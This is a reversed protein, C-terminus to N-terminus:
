PSEILRKVLRASHLAQEELQRTKIALKKRIEDKNSWADNIKSVLENFTTTRLDCVYREQELMRMIGCYKHSWALAITPVHMSTSAINSHMRAGIFLDFRGIIGKLEDPSYDGKILKIRNKNMALQHIKKAVFRDDPYGLKPPIAVHPVFVVQANLKDILYDVINAMLVYINSKSKIREMFLSASIGILPGNKEKININEKIMIQEVKESPAPELLFAVDPALYISPNHVGMEKLYNKTIDERVVILDARNLCFRALPLSIKRFPGISQSYIVIKKELFIALLIRTMSFISYGLKDRFSDGSLDVIIDSKYYEMLIEKDIIKKVNLGNKRLISWLFACILFHLSEFLRLLKSYRSFSKKTKHGKVRINYKSCLKSDLEPSGSLLTFNVNSMLRRLTKTTSIVQAASGKNWSCNTGIFLINTM